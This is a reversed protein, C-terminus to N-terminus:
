KIEVFDSPPTFTNKDIETFQINALNAQGIQKTLGDEKSWEWFSWDTAFPIGNIAQHNNYQIAHPHAEAQEKTKGYTVIYAAETILNTETDSYIYYWDDPADGTGSTFTLRQSNKNTGNLTTQEFQDWKTGNDSLKYPLLFFYSWTYAHFRVINKGKINPTHYVKNDITYIKSGDKLTIIGKSSDSSVLMNGQLIKNGGFMITIDTQIANHALFEEKQHANEIIEIQSKKDKVVEKSIPTKVEQKTAKKCATCIFFLSLFSTIISTKM